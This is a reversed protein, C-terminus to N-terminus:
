IINVDLWIIAIILLLKLTPNSLLSTTLSQQFNIYLLELATWAGIRENTFRGYGSAYVFHKQKIHPRVKCWLSYWLMYLTYKYNMSAMLYWLYDLFYAYFHITPDNASINSGIGTVFRKTETTHTKILKYIEDFLTFLFTFIFFIVASSSCSTYM